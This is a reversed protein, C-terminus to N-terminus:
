RRVRTVDNVKEWVPNDRTSREAVYRWLPRFRVDGGRLEPEVEVVELVRRVGFPDFGIQVIIDVARRFLDKTAALKVNLDLMLLTGFTAVVERPSDAHVTSLGPHDSMQARFLWMGVDGRRVEGVILWWRPTMRMAATVLQGMDVGFKGEINAPRAELSVVHPRDLFIEAPDEAMVIRNEPPIMNALFSLFTTKGTGTGGAVIIRLRRRVADELMDAMAPPLMKWENVMRERTVPKAEFFRINVAPYEGNAIPPAVVHVRAGAPFRESRPLKASVIPEAETMRRGVVALMKDVVVRAAQPSPRLGQVPRPFVEGKPITWVTGDPNLMIETIEGQAAMDLLPELWGLGFAQAMVERVIGEVDVGAANVGRRAVADTVLVRAAERVRPRDEEKLGRVVMDPFRGALASAVEAILADRDEPTLSQSQTIYGLM